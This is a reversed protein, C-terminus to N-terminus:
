EMEILLQNKSVIDGKKVYVKKITGGMPAHVENVMKMAELAVLKDNYEVKKGKKVFIGVITGPIFATIKKPNDPQYKVRDKYKKTLLTKYEVNDVKLVQFQYEDISNVDRKKAM